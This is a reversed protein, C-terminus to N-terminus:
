RYLGPRRHSLVPMAERAAAVREPDIETVVLADGAAGRAIVEGLPDVVLSREVLSDGCRCAGAVYCESEIARARLLTEWHEAKHPGDHWCAPFLALELSDVHARLTEPFRLDYCIGVAFSAFPSRVPACLAEGPLYRDSEYVGHADYLHCKHYVRQITGAEDVVVATNYPPVSARRHRTAEAMTFVIWLGREVAIHAIGSAFPGDLAQSAFAIDAPGVGQPFMLNEPFALLQAGASAAQAAFDDVQRLVDGDQPWRCQALALKFGM